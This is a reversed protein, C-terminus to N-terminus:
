FRFYNKFHLLHSSIGWKAEYHSWKVMECGAHRIKGAHLFISGSNDPLNTSCITCEGRAHLMNGHTAYAILIVINPSRIVPKTSSCCSVTWTAQRPCWGCNLWDPCNDLELSPQWVLERLYLLKIVPSTRDAMGLLLQAEQQSMIYARYSVHMQVTYIFCRKIADETPLM